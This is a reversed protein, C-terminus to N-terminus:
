CSTLNKTTQEESMSEMTFWAFAEIQGDEETLTDKTLTEEQKFSVSDAAQALITGGEGILLGVLLLVAWFKRQKIQKM